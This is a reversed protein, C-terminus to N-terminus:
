DRDFLSTSIDWADLFGLMISLIITLPIAVIFAIVNEILMAVYSLIRWHLAIPPKEGEVLTQIHRKLTNLQEKLNTPVQDTM